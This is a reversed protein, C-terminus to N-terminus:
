PLFPYERLGAKGEGGVTAPLVPANHHYGQSVGKQLEPCMCTKRRKADEGTVCLGEERRLLSREHCLPRDSYSM